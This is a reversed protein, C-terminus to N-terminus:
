EARRQISQQRSSVALGASLWDHLLSGLEVPWRPAVNEGSSPRGRTVSDAARSTAGTEARHPAVPGPRFGGREGRRGFGRRAGLDDLLRAARPGGGATVLDERAPALSSGTQSLQARRRGGRRDRM